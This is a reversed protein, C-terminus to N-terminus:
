WSDSILFQCIVTDHKSVNIKKLGLAQLKSNRFEASVDSIFGIVAEHTGSRKSSNRFSVNRKHKSTTQALLSIKFHARM